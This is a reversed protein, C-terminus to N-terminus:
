QARMAIHSFGGVVVLGVGIWYTIRQMWRGTTRAKALATDQVEKAAEAEALEAAAEDVGKGTHEAHGYQHALQHVRAQAQSYAIAQEDTWASRSAPERVYYSAGVLLIGLLILVLTVIEARM